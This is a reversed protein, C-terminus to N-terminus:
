EGYHYVLRTNAINVKLRSPAVGDTYNVNWKVYTQPIRKDIYRAIHEVMDARPIGGELYHPYVNDYFEYAKFVIQHM